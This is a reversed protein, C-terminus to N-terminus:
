KEVTFVVSGIPSIVASNPNGDQVTSVDGDSAYVYLVHQGNLLPAPVKVQGTSVTGGNKAKLAVSTWKGRWGDVQYYAYQPVLAAANEPFSSTASIVFSPQPNHTRFLPTTAITQSDKVGKATTAIPLEAVGSVDTTPLWLNTYSYGPGALAGSGLDVVLRHAALDWSSPAVAAVTNLTGDIAAVVSTSSGTDSGVYVTNTLPNAKIDTAGTIEPYATGSLDLMLTDSTGNYILVHPVGAESLGLYFNGTLPNVGIATPEAAVIPINLILANQTTDIVSLNQSSAVYLRKSGPDLAAFQSVEPLPITALITGGAPDIVYVADLAAYAVNVTPDVFVFGPNASGVTITKLLAETSGDLVYVKASEYDWAVIQNTASDIAISRIDATTPVSTILKAVNTKGNVSYFFGSLDGVYIKNTAPNVTVAQSYADAIPIATVGATDGSLGTYGLEAAAENVAFLTGLRLTYVTGTAPNADVFDSNLDFGSFDQEYAAVLSRPSIDFASVTNDASNATFVRSTVPDFALAIPVKGTGLEHVEIPLPPFLMDVIYLLGQGDAGSVIGFQNTSTNVALATYGSGPVVWGSGLTFVGDGAAYPVYNEGNLGLLFLGRAAYATSIPDAGPDGTEDLISYGNDADIVAVPVTQDTPSATVAVNTQPDVSISTIGYPISAGTLTIVLSNTTGDIVVVSGATSSSCGVFVAHTAINVAMAAPRMGTPLTALLAGTKANLVEIQTRALDAVYLQDLVSDVVLAIPQGGVKWTAALATGTIVSITGAQANAVYVMNAPPNAAMALANAGIPITKVVTLLVTDFVSVTNAGQNVVYGLHAAPNVVIASPHKGVPITALPTVAWLLPEALLLAVIISLRTVRALPCIVCSLLTLPRRTQMTM